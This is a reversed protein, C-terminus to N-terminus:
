LGNHNVMKIFGLKDLKLGNVDIYVICITLATEDFDSPLRKPLFGFDAFNTSQHDFRRDSM